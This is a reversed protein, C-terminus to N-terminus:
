SSRLDAVPATRASSFTANWLKDHRTREDNRTDKLHKSMRARAANLSRPNQAKYVETHACIPCEFRRKEEDHLLVDESAPAPEAFDAVYSTDMDITPDVATLRIGLRKREGGPLIRTRVTGGDAGTAGQIGEGSTNWHYLSPHKPGSKQRVRACTERWSLDDVICQRIADLGPWSVSDGHVKSLESLRHVRGLVDSVAGPSVRSPLGKYCAVEVSEGLHSMFFALEDANYLQPEFFDPDSTSSLTPM